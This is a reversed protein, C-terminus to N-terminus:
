AERMNVGGGGEWSNDIGGGGKGWNRYIVRYRTVTRASTKRMKRTNYLLLTVNNYSTM